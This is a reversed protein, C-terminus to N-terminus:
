PKAHRNLVAQSLKRKANSATLEAPSNERPPASAPPPEGFRLLCAMLLIGM